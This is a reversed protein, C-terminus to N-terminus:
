SSSKTYSVGSTRNSPTYIGTGRARSKITYTGNPLSAYGSLSTLDVSLATGTITQSANAYLYLALDVNHVDTGNTINITKSIGPQWEVAM